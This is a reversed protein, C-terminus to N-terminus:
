GHLVGESVSSGASGTSGSAQTSGTSGTSGHREHSGGTSDSGGPGHANREADDHAPRHRPAAAMVARTGPDPASAPDAPGAAPEIGGPTTSRPEVRAAGRPEARVPERDWPSEWVSVAPDPGVDGADGAGGAGTRAARSADSAARQAAGAAGDLSAEPAGSGRAASGTPRPLWRHRHGHPYSVLGVVPWGLAEVLARTREIAASSVQDPSLVVLVPREGPEAWERGLVQVPLRHDSRGDHPGLLPALSRAWAEERADVLVLLLQTADYRRGLLALRDAIPGAAGLTSPALDRRPLYGVHPVGLTRAVARPSPLRPRFAELVAALGVGFLVGLLAVLVARQYVHAPLPITPERVPDLLVARSTTATSLDLDSLQRELEGQTTTLSTLQAQLALVGNPSANPMKKVLQERQKALAELQHQVETRRQVVAPQDGVNSFEIVDQTLSTAIVAARRPSTDTVAIEMVPSVGVRRVDINNAAFTAVDTQLGGKDLAQRVVGPSTAIGLVRQSTADAQVNSSAAESGMQIRAVAEYSSPQSKGIYWAAGFPVLVCLLIVLWHGRIVRGFAEDITM